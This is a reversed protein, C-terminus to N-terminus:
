YYNLLPKNLTKNREATRELIAKEIVKNEVIM